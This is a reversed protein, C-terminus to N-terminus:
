GFDQDPVPSFHGTQTVKNQVLDEDNVKKLGTGSQGFAPRDMIEATLIGLAM